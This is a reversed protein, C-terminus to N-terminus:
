QPSDDPHIRKREKQIQQGIRRLREVFFRELEEYNQHIFLSLMAEGDDMSLGGEDVPKGWIERVLM